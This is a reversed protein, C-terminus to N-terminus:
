NHFSGVCRETVPDACVVEILWVEETPVWVMAIVPVGIDLSPVPIALPGGELTLTTSEGFDLDYSATDAAAFSPFLAVALVVSGMLISNKM